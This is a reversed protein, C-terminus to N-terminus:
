TLEAVCFVRGCSEADAAPPHIRAAPPPNKPRLPPRPLKHRLRTQPNAPHANPTPQHHPPADHLNLHTPQPRRRLPNHRQIPLYTDTALLSPFPFLHLYFTLPLHLIHICSSEGLIRWASARANSLVEPSHSLCPLCQPLHLVLSSFGFFVSLILLSPLSSVDPEGRVRTEKDRGVV